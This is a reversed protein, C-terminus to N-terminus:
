KVSQLLGTFRVMPTVKVLQRGHNVLELRTVVKSATITLPSSKEVLAVREFAVELETELEGLSSWFKGFAVELTYNEGGGLSFAWSAASGAGSLSFYKYFEHTRAAVQPKLASCHLVFNGSEAGSSVNKVTM